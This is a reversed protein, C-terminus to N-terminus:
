KNHFEHYQPFTITYAHAHADSHDRMFQNTHLTRTHSKGNGFGTGYAERAEDEDPHARSCTLTYRKKSGGGVGGDGVGSKGIGEIGVWEEDEDSYGLIDASHSFSCM